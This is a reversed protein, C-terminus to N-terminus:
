TKRRWDIRWDGGLKNDEVLCKVLYGVDNDEYRLILNKDRVEVKELGTIMKRRTSPDAYAYVTKYWVLFDRNFHSSQGDEAKWNMAAADLKKVPIGNNFVWGRSEYYSIFREQEKQPHNFNKDFFFIELIKHKEADTPPISFNRSQNIIKIRKNTNDDTEAAPEALPSSAKQEAYTQCISGPQEAYAQCIGDKQQAYAEGADKGKQKKCLAGKRGADSKVSSVTRKHELRELVSENWFSRDDYVFLGYNNVLKEVDKSDAWRLSFAIVEYDLPLYGNNEWLMEVLCWWLGLGIGGMEMQVRLLKPNNRAGIDHTLYPTNDM